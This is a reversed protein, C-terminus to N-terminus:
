ILKEQYGLIYHNIIIYKVRERDTEVNVMVGVSTPGLPRRACTLWQIFAPEENRGAPPGNDLCDQSAKEESPPQREARTQGWDPWRKWSLRLMLFIDSFNFYFLTQFGRTAFACACTTLNWLRVAWACTSIYGSHSLSSGGLFSLNSNAVLFFLFM